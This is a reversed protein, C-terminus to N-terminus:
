AVSADDSDEQKGAELDVFPEKGVYLAHLNVPTDQYIESIEKSLKSPAAPRLIYRTDTEAGHKSVYIDYLLPSGKNQSLSELSKKVHAQSFSWVQLRDVDYNWVLVANFQKIPNKPNPAVRPRDKLRYRIPKRDETWNEWGEIALSLIRIKVEDGETLRGPNFYDPNGAYKKSESSFLSSM